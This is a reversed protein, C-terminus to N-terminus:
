KGKGARKARMLADSYDKVVPKLQSAREFSKSAAEYLNFEELQVGLRYHCQAEQDFLLCNLKLVELAEESRDQRQLIHALNNLEIFNEVKNNWKTALEKLKSEGIGEKPNQDLLSGLTNAFRYNPQYDGSLIAYLDAELSVVPEEVIRNVEKGNKSIIITPVKHINLGETEKKPGQKYFEGDGRLAIMKVNEKPIELDAILKIFRPVYRKSDGCWTGMFLQIQYESIQPKLKEVIDTDSQYTDYANQFWDNFAPQTLDSMEFQGWLVERGKTDTIYNSPTQAIALGSLLVILLLFKKM